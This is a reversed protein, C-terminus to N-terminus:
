GPREDHEDEGHNVFVVNQRQLRKQCADSLCLKPLNLYLNISGVLLLFRTRKHADTNRRASDLKFLKRTQRSLLSYAIQLALRM